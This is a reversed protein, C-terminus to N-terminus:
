FQTRFGIQIGDPDTAIQMNNLKYNDVLIWTVLASLAAGGIVDHWYHARVKTRAWGAVLSMSYPVLAYKWGYRKHVYMAGSFAGVAHGSPFSKKDSKNPRTELEFLKITESMMQALFVSEGLQAVGKYDKIMMSMGFAYTPSMIMMIDSLKNKNAFLNTAHAPPCIFIVVGLLFTHLTIKFASM